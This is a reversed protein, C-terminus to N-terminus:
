QLCMWCRSSGVWRALLLLQPPHRPPALLLPLQLADQCRVSPQESCPTLTPRRNVTAHPCTIRHSPRAHRSCGEVGRESDSAAALTCVWGCVWVCVCVCACAGAAAQRVNCAPRGAWCAGAHSLARGLCRTPPHCPAAHHSQRHCHHAGVLCCLCPWLCVALSERRGQLARPPM